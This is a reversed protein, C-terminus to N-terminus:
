SHWRLFQPGSILAVSKMSLCPSIIQRGFPLPLLLRLCIIAASSLTSSGSAVASRDTRIGEPEESPERKRKTMSVSIDTQVRFNNLFHIHVSSIYKTFPAACDLNFYSLTWVGECLRSWAGWANRLITKHHFEYIRVSVIGRAEKLKIEKALSGRSFLSLCIM